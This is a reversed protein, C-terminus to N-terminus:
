ALGHMVLREYESFPQNFVLNQFLNLYSNRSGYSNRCHWQTAVLRVLHCTADQEYSDFDKFSLNATCEAIIDELTSYQLAYEIASIVEERTPIETTRFNELICPSLTM